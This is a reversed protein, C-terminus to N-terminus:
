VEVAKAIHLGGADRELRFKYTKSDYDIASESSNYSGGAFIDYTLQPINGRPNVAGESDSGYQWIGCADGGGAQKEVFLYYLTSSAPDEFAKNTSDYDFYRLGNFVAQPVNLTPPTSPNPM